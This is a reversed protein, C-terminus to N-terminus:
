KTGAAEAASGERGAYPVGLLRAVAARVTEAEFAAGIIAGTDKLRTVPPVSAADIGAERYLAALDVGYSAAAEAWTSSGKIDEVKLDGAAAREQLTPPTFAISGSAKGAGLVGVYLGVGALAVLGLRVPAGALFGTLTGKKTPCASVCEMCGICEASDVSDIRMVPINMPCSRDCRACSICTASDRRLRFLPVRSLLANFAGLPCVYKCFARDYLASLLLSALLVVLGVAFEAWVAGLGASLHGYAAWPDYPRIILTGTIWSGAVVAALVVYKFYRLVSDLARPVAFRRRFVLAGLRGFVGQLAGFACIWGCFFRSLGLGLGVILALLAINSPEIRQVFGGGAALKYLTEIGGFPCLADVAPFNRAVQHLVAVATTLALFFGLSLRRAIQLSSTKMRM